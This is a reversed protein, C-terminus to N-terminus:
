VVWDGVVPLESRSTARHSLRGSRVAEIEGGECWVRCIYNFEILIRGPQLDSKGAWAQFATGLTEDWGLSELTTM